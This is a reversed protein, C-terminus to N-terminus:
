GIARMTTEAWDLSMLHRMLTDMPTIGYGQSPNVSGGYLASVGGTAFNQASITPTNSALSVPLSLTFAGGISDVDQIAVRVAGKTGHIATHSELVEVLGQMAVTLDTLLSATADEFYILLKDTNSMGSTDYALTLVNGSVTGGVGSGAFNYIVTNSTVNVILLVQDLRIAGYDNFTVTKATKNFSYNTVNTKM